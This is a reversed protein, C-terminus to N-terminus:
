DRSLCHHIKKLREFIWGSIDRKIGNETTQSRSVFNGALCVYKEGKMLNRWHNFVQQFGGTPWARRMSYEHFVGPKVMGTIQLDGITDKTGFEEAFYGNDELTISINERSFCQWYIYGFDEKPLFPAPKLYQTYFALAHKNLIGYDQTLLTFPYKQKAALNISLANCSIACLFLIITINLYKM